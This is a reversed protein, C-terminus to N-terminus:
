LIELLKDKSCVWIQHDFGLAKTARQKALNEDLQKKMTYTSKVEILLNESPIWIDPFYHCLRGKIPNWYEVVPISSPASIIIEDETYGENLLLNIAVDEYGQFTFEKGSPLIGTKRKYKLTKSFISPDQMPYDVGYRQRSTAKAKSYLFKDDEGYRQICTEIMKKRFEESEGPWNVGWRQQNTKKIKEKVSEAKLPNDVGFKEVWKDKTRERVGTGWMNNAHGYRESNTKALKEKFKSAQSRCKTSCYDQFRYGKLLSCFIGEVSKGCYCESAPVIKRDRLFWEIAQSTSFDSRVSDRIQKRLNKPIRIIKLRLEQHEETGTFNSKVYKEIESYIDM